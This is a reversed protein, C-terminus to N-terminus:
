LVLATIDGLQGDLNAEALGVAARIDAAAVGTIAVVGQVDVNLYIANSTAAIGNSEGAFSISGGAIVLPISADTNEVEVRGAQYTTFNTAQLTDYSALRIGAETSRVWCWWLFIDQLLEVGAPTTNDDDANIQLTGIGELLIGFKGGFQDGRKAPFLQGYKGSQVYSTAVIQEHVSELALTSSVTAGTFASWTILSDRTDLFQTASANGGAEAWKTAKFRILIGDPQILSQSFGSGGSVVTNFLETEAQITFNGTGQSTFNVPTAPIDALSTFLQDGSWYYFGGDVLVNGSTAPLTAGAQLSFRIQTWPATTAFAAAKGQSDNGLAIADTSTNIATSAISFSQVRAGYSRTGDALAPAALAQPKAVITLNSGSGTVNALQNPNLWVIVAANPSTTNSITAGSTFTWGSLDYTGTVALAVTGAAPVIGSAYNIATTSPNNLTITGTTTLTDTFTPANITITSGALAFAAGSTALTINYSGANLTTGSRTVLVASQGAFNDYIWAKARDYFQAATTITTYADVTAKTTQTILSDDLLQWNQTLTGNGSLNLEQQQPLHLYSFVYCDFFDQGAINRITVPAANAIDAVLGPQITLSWKDATDTGVATINHLRGGHIFNSNVTPTIATRAGAGDDILVTTAGASYGGSNSVFAAINTKNRLDHYLNQILLRENNAMSTTLGPSITLTYDAANTTVATILHRTNNFLFSGNIGPAASFLGTGNDITIQTDTENFSGDAFAALNISRRNPNFFYGTIVNQATATGSSNTTWNYTKNAAADFISTLQSKTFVNTVDTGSTFWNFQNNNLTDAIYVKAANINAGAITKIVHALSKGTYYLGGQLSNTDTFTSIISFLSTTTNLYFNKSRTTPGTCRFQFQTSPGNRVILDQVTVTVSNNQIAAITGAADLVIGTFTTDASVSTPLGWRFGMNTFGNFTGLGTSMVSQNSSGLFIANTFSVTEFLYLWGNSQITANNVTLSGASTNNLSAYTSTNSGRPLLTIIPTPCVSGNPSTAGWNGGTGRAGNLTLTGANVFPAVVVGIVSGTDDTQCTPSLVLQEAWANFTLTGTVRVCTCYVTYIDAGTDAADQNAIVGPSYITLAADNAISANLAPFFTITRTGANYNTIRHVRNNWVFCDRIAPTPVPAAGSGNDIIMATATSAYGGSNDIFANIVNSRFAALGALAFTTSPYSGVDSSSQVLPNQFTLSAGAALSPVAVGTVGPGTVSYLAVVSNTASSVSRVHFVANTGAIVVQAGVFLTTSLNGTLTVLAETSVGATASTTYATQVTASVTTFAWAM